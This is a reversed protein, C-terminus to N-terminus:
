RAGAAPAPPAPKADERAFLMRVGMFGLVLAFLVRLTPGALLHAFHAAAAGAVISALAAPLVVDKRVNGLRLHSWAGVLATPVVM